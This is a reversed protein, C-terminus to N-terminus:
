GKRASQVAAVINCYAGCRCLNGSMQERVEDDTRARAERLLGVASMIQGPTCYGCQLADQAAFAAQVPHLTEGNALGEITTVKSEGLMVALTLCSYVRRGDILVTCAGCQGHDCGKKTGTLALRERLADLLSVRPEVRLSRSTGNVHQTNDLEHAGPAVAAGPPPAAAPGHHACGDLLLLAFASVLSTVVLERRTLRLRADSSALLKTGALKLAAALASLPDSSDLPMTEAFRLVKTADIVFLGLADKEAPDVAYRARIGAMQRPDIEDNSARLEADDDPRFSWVEDCAFMVLVAGLGRLEARVARLTPESEKRWPAPSFAVVIPQGDFSEISMVGARATLIDIAPAAQGLAPQKM